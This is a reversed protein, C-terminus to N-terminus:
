WIAKISFTGISTAWRRSLKRGRNNVNITKKVKTVKPSKSTSESLRSVDPITLTSQIKQKKEFASDKDSDERKALQTMTTQVM